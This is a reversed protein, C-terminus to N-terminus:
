AVKVETPFSPDGDEKPDFVRFGTISQASQWAADDDRGDIVPAREAINAAATAIGTAGGVTTATQQARVPQGGGIAATAALGLMILATKRASGVIRVAKMELM